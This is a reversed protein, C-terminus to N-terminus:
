RPDDSVLLAEMSQRYIEALPGLDAVSVRENIQHITANPPGFEIVERCHKAIFRGDSTGGTTSLEANPRTVNL